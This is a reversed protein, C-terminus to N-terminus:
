EDDDSLASKKSIARVEGGDVLAPTMDKVEEAIALGSLADAFADRLAFARARNFLMRDPYKIWPQRKVNLWLNARKADKVTYRGVYPEDQGVRWYRVEHGYEDPWDKLELSPDMAPGIKVHTQKAVLRHSQALAVAGDGWITFRNNIPLLYSLGTLPPLGLEMAKLIGITLLSANPEGKAHILEGKNDRIDESYTFSEPVIGSAIIARAMRAAEDTDKPIIAQVGEGTATLPVIARKPPAPSATDAAGQEESAAGAESSTEPEVTTTEPEETNQDKIDQM